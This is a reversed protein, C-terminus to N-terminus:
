KCSALSLPGTMLGSVLVCLHFKLFSCCPHLFGPTTLCAVSWSPSSPPSATSWVSLCHCLWQTEDQNFWSTAAATAPMHGIVPTRHLVGLLSFDCTSHLSFNPTLPLCSLPSISPLSTQKILAKREENTFTTSGLSCIVCLFLILRTKRM